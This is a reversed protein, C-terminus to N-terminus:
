RLFDRDMITRTFTAYMHPGGILLTVLLNVTVRAQYAPTGKISAAQVADGGFFVYISYPVFVIAVSLIIFSLDWGASRLWPQRVANTERELIDATAAIGNM